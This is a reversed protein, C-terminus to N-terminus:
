SQGQVEDTHVASLGALAQTFASHCRTAEPDNEDDTMFVGIRRLRDRQQAWTAAPWPRQRSSRERSMVQFFESSAARGARISVPM